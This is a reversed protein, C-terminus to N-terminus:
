RYDSATQCKSRLKVQHDDGVVEYPRQIAPPKGVIRSAARGAGDLIIEEGVETFEM